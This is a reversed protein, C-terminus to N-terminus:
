KLGGLMIGRVIQRQFILFVILVPIVAITSAAMLLNFESATQQSQFLVLGLQVTM